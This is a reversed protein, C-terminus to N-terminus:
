TPRINQINSKTYSDSISLLSLFRSLEGLHRRAGLFVVLNEQWVRWIIDCSPMTAKLQIRKVKTLCLIIFQQGISYQRIAQFCIVTIPMQKYRRM